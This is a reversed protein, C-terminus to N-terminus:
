RDSRNRVCDAVEEPADAWRLWADLTPPLRGPLREDDGPTEALVREVVPSWFDGLFVTPRPRDAGKNARELVWALELLTGTGGKLFVYASALSVITSLRETLDRTRIEEQVHPNARSAAFYDTTVGITHGGAERAGRAGAEMTGGYGGNCVAYGARALAAGVARASEYDASGPAPQSSGFVSVVDARV